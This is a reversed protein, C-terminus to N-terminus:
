LLNNKKWNRLLNNKYTFFGNVIWTTLYFVDTPKWHFYSFPLTYGLSHLYYMNHFTNLVVGM